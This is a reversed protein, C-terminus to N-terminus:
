LAPTGVLNMGDGLWRPNMACLFYAITASKSPRPPVVISSFTCFRTVAVSCNSSWNAIGREIASSPIEFSSNSRAIGSNTLIAKSSGEHREFGRMGKNLSNTSSKQLAYLPRPSAFTSSPDCFGRSSLTSTHCRNIYPQFNISTPHGLHQVLGSFLQFVGTAIYKQIERGHAPDIRASKPRQFVERARGVPLRDLNRQPADVDIHVFDELQRPQRRSKGHHISFTPNVPAGIRPLRWIRIPFRVRFNDALTAVHNFTDMSIEHSKRRSFSSARHLEM